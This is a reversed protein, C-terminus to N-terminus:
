GRLETAGQAISRMAADDGTPHQRAILRALDWFRQSSRDWDPWTAATQLAGFRLRRLLAPDDSLRKLAAVAGQEDGMAVVLGNREHEVYEDHGTVDYTVVTGGCHFMELPPGYMGEVQSLKLLVDCSRYVAATHEIPIRSIVRDVGDFHDVASSTLLWVEDAGAARAIAVSEPVHKMPVDVPGEVLVRLGSM